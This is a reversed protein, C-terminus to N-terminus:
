PCLEPQLKGSLPASRMNPLDGFPAKPLGSGNDAESVPCGPELVVGGPEAPNTTEPTTSREFAEGPRPM